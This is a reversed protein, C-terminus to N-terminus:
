VDRVRFGTSTQVERNALYTDRLRIYLSGDLREEITVVDGKYVTTDQTANLQFWQSKFQITYDNNVRRKSQIPKFFCGKENYRERLNVTPCSCGFFSLILATFRM